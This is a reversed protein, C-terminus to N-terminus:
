SKRSLILAHAIEYADEDEMGDCVMHPGFVNIHLNYNLYIKEEVIREVDELGGEYGDIIVLSTQDFKKLREILEAITM